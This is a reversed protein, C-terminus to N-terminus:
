HALFVPIRHDSIVDSVFSKRVSESFASREFAGSVLICSEKEMMWSGFYKVPDFELKMFSLQTFHRGALEEINSQEPFVRGPHKQDATILLTPLSTLDPFLYAFQKLAFVSSDSGDYALVVSEPFRFNEPVIVVPCETHHMADRLFANPGKTGLNRYFEESGIIMLDAFRTEKKLEPLAFDFYNEHIRHEIGNRECMAKFRIINDTIVEVDADEVLPMFVPGAMGGGSYSWLNAYDVQPLFLGSLLVPELQNLKIAFEFAGKSFHGGDFPIVIKKM